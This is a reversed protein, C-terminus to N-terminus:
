LANWFLAIHRKSFWRSVGYPDCIGTRVGQVCSLPLAKKDALGDTFHALTFHQPSCDNIMCIHVRSPAFLALHEIEKMEAYTQLLDPLHSCKM